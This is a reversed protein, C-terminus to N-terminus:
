FMLRSEYDRNVKGNIYWYAPLTNIRIGFATSDAIYSFCRILDGHYSGKLDGYHDNYTSADRISVSLDNEKAFQFIDNSDQINVISTNTIPQKQPRMLQKKIIYPLLEGKLTTINQDYKLYKVIWNKMVYFHSDILNSYMKIHTHKRLLARPLPVDTEFDSASALFVLRNTQADIGILDRELVCSM